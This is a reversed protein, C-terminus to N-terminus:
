NKKRAADKAVGPDYPDPTKGETLREMQDDYESDSVRRRGPKFVAKGEPYGYSAAARQLKAMARLDDKQAPINLVRHQEDVLVGEPTEWIYVGWDHEEVVTIKPHTM